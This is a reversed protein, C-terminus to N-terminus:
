AAEEEPVVKEGRKKKVKGVIATAGRKLREKSTKKQPKDNELASAIQDGAAKCLPGIVMFLCFAGRCLWFPMGIALWAYAGFTVMLFPFIIIGACCSCCLGVPIADEQDEGLVFCFICVGFFEAFVFWLYRHGYEPHNWRRTKPLEWEDCIWVSDLAGCSPSRCECRSWEVEERSEIEGEWAACTDDAAISKCEYTEHEAGETYPNIDQTTRFIVSFLGVDREECTWRLCAKKEGQLCRCQSIETEIERWSQCDRRALAKNDGNVICVGSWRYHIHRYTPQYVSSPPWGGYANLERAAATSNVDSTNGQVAAKYLDAEIVSLNETPTIDVFKFADPDTENAELRRYLGGYYAYRFWEGTTLSGGEQRAVLAHYTQENMPFESYECRESESNGGDSNQNREIYCIHQDAELAHCGWEECWNGSHPDSLKHCKCIGFDHEDCNWEHLTWVICIGRTADSNKCRYDEVELEKSFRWTPNGRWVGSDDVWDAKKRFDGMEPEWSLQPEPDTCQCGHLQAAAFILLVGITAQRTPLTSFLFGTVLLSLVKKPNQSAAGNCNVDCGPNNPNDANPQFVSDLKAYECLPKFNDLCGDDDQKACYAVCKLQSCEQPGGSTICYHCNQICTRFGYYSCKRITMDSHWICTDRYIDLNCGNLIIGLLFLPIVVAAQKLM